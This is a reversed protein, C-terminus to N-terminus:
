ISGASKEECLYMGTMTGILIRKKSDLFAIDCIEGHNNKLTDYVLDVPDMTQYQRVEFFTSPKHMVWFDIGIQPHYKRKIRDPACLIDASNLKLCMNTILDQYILNSWVVCCEDFYIPRVFKEHHFCTTGFALKHDIEQGVYWQKICTWRTHNSFDKQYLAYMAINNQICTSKERYTRLLYMKSDQGLVLKSRYGRYEHQPDEADVKTETLERINYSRQQPLIVIQSCCTSHKCHTLIDYVTQGDPSVAFSIDVSDYGRPKFQWIIAQRSIDYVIYKANNNKVIFTHESLFCFSYPNPLTKSPIICLPEFDNKRYVVIQDGIAVVYSENHTISFCNKCKKFKTTSINSGDM